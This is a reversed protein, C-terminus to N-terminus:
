LKCDTFHWIDPLLRCCFTSCRRSSPLVRELHLATRNLEIKCKANHRDGSGAGRTTAREGSGAGRTTAPDGSGAVPAPRLDGSVRRGHSFPLGETAGDRTVRGCCSSRILEIKCEEGRQPLTEQGHWQRSGFTEWFGKARSPGPSGRDPRHCPGARAVVDPGSGNSRANKEHVRTGHTRIPVRGM